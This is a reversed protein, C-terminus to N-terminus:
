DSASMARSNTGADAGFFYVDGALPKVSTQLGRQLAWWRPRKNGKDCDWRWSYFVQSLPPSRTEIPYILRGTAHRPQDSPWTFIQDFFWSSFRLEGHSGLSLCGRTRFNLRLPEPKTM